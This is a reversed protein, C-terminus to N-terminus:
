IIMQEAYVRFRLAPALPPAPQSQHIPALFLGRQPQNPSCDSTSSSTLRAAGPGGGGAARGDGCQVACVGKSRM